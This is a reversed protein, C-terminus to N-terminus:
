NIIKKVKENETTNCTSTGGLLYKLTATCQKQRITIMIGSEGM